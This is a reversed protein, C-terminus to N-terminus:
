EELNHNYNQKNITRSDIPLLFDFIRTTTIFKQPFLISELDLLSCYQGTFKTCNISLILTYLNVTLKKNHWILIFNQTKNKMVFATTYSQLWANLMSSFNKSLNNSWVHVLLQWNWLFKTFNPKNLRIIRNLAYLRDLIAKYMCAYGSIILLRTFKDHASCCRDCLISTITVHCKIICTSIWACTVCTSVQYETVLKKKRERERGWSIDIVRYLYRYIHSFQICLGKICM